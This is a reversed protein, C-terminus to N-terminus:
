QSVELNSYFYLNFKHAQPDPKENSGTLFSRSSFNGILSFSIGIFLVLFELILFLSPYILGLFYLYTLNASLKDNVLSLHSSNLWLLGFIM